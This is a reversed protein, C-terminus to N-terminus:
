WTSNSTRATGPGSRNGAWIRACFHAIEHALSAALMVVAVVDRDLALSYMVSASNVYIRPDLAGTRRDRLRFTVMGTRVEGGADGDIVVVPPLATEGRVTRLAIIAMEVAPDNPTPGASLLQATLLIVPLSAAVLPIM